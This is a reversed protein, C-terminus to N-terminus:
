PRVIGKRLDPLPATRILVSTLQHLSGNSRILNDAGFAVQFPQVHHRHVLGFSLLKIANNDQM